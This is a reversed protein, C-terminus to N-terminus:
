LDDHDDKNSLAIVMGLVVGFGLMVATFIVMEM